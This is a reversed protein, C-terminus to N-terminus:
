FNPSAGLRLSALQPELLSRWRGLTARPRQRAFFGWGCGPGYTPPPQQAQGTCASSRGLRPRMRRSSSGTLLTAASLRGSRPRAPTSRSSPAKLAAGAPGSRALGAQIPADIASRRGSINQAIHPTVNLARMDAVFSAADYGKDGGVTIRSAGPSRCVIM